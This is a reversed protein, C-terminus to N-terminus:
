RKQVWFHYMGSFTDPAENEVAHWRELDDMAWGRRAFLARYHQQAAAPFEFGLFLLGEAAIFDKIEPITLHREAVHFLLDRCESLAYFDNIRALRAFGAALLEQRCRRLEAPTPAFGRAAIFARAAVIDARGRASYLGLHMFGGPRLLALLIRWAAFPDSMHHLVGSADVMDFRRALGGLALIDAQAYAIRGALAPPTRHRAYALSARSLDVALVQADKFRRALGIAQWGTGCGAVLVELPGQKRPPALAAHPFLNRLYDALALPAVAGPPHVWRPYPNEEYQARVRQSVADTIPTLCPIGAGLAHEARPERVQQALIAEVARPFARALLAPAEGLSGLPRYMALRALTLPAPEGEAALAAEVAAALRAVEAEEEATTAFVYENIFCQMALAAALELAAEEPAERLLACRLATLARELALDRVPTARLLFVFLPDAALTGLATAGLLEALPPRRPWAADARAMAEAIPPLVACLTARVAEFDDMLQPMLALARAFCASAEARRGRALLLCGLENLTEAHDPAQGLARRYCRAAEAHRGAAQARAAAALLDRLADAPAAVAKAGRRLAARRQRRNMSSGM